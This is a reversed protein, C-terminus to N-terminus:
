RTPVDKRETPGEPARAIPTTNNEAAPDGVTEANGVQEGPDPVQRVIPGRQEKSEGVTNANGPESSAPTAPQSKKQAPKPTSAPAQALSLAASCTLIWLYKM